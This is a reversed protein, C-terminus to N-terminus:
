GRPETGSCYGNVSINQRCHFPHTARNGKNAGANGIRHAARQAPHWSPSSTTHNRGAHTDGRPRNLHRVVHGLSSRIFRSATARITRAFLLVQVTSVFATSWRRKYEHAGHSMMTHVGARALQQLAKQMLHTGPSLNAFRDAYALSVDYFCGREVLGVLFAADCGDISLIPLAVMGRPAFRRVLESLFNRHCAALRQGKLKYSAETIAIFRGIADEYQDLREELFVGDVIPHGAAAVREAQRKVSRRFNRSMARCYGDYGNRLDALAHFQPASEFALRHDCGAQQLARFPDSTPDFGNLCIVDFRFTRVLSDIFASVITPDDDQALFEGAHADHVAFNIRTIPVRALRAPRVVLPAIGVLRTGRRAVGILPQGGDAGAYHRYWTALYDFTSFVTRARVVTELERWEPAVDDIDPVTRRWEVRVPAAGPM